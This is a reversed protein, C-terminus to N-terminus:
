DNFKEMEAMYTNLTNEGYNAYIGSICDFPNLFESKKIDLRNAINIIQQGKSLIENYLSTGHYPRFRFASIRLKGDVKNSYDTIKKAFTLTEKLEYETESPLGLIFYCKLSLKSDLINIITKYAIDSSFPKRIHRLTADSGSEVGIFLEKCGSMKIAELTKLSLDKFTNIHAMSRWFLDRGSFLKIALEISTKDRLFLDDLIRICNVKKQIDKILSIENYLNEYSRYRPKIYQNISTAATCFACNYLCGRSAIIHSETVGLDLRQIPENKFISRDLPLDINNPYFFSGPSVSIVNIKESFEEFEISKKVIEPIILEAEGIIIIIKNKTDWKKIEPVLHYVAPGGLLFTKEKMVKTVIMQVIEINSSFINLGVFESDTQEIINIIEEPFLNDLVADILQCSIGVIKLQTYIYGLGIPPVSSGSDPDRNARFIPSNILLINSM